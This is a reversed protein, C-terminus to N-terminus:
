PVPSGPAHKQRPAYHRLEALLEACSPCRGLHTATRQTSSTKLTGLLYSALHPRVTRCEPSPGRTDTIHHQLYGRTLGARARAHLLSVANASIGTLQAVAAPKLDEVDRYWLVQQWHLPLEAFALAVAEMDFSRVAPDQYPAAEDPLFGDLTLAALERDTNSAYATRRLVTLLYSRFNREPGGGRHLNELVSTFAESVADQRERSRRVELSAVTSAQGRHKEYLAGFAASDGTRAKRLLGDPDEPALDKVHPATQRPSRPGNGAVAGRQAAKSDSVM